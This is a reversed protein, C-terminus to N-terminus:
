QLTTWNDVTWATWLWFNFYFAAASYGLCGEFGRCEPHHKCMYTCESANDRESFKVEIEQLEQQCSIATDVFELMTVTSAKWPMKTGKEKTLLLAFSLASFWVDSEVLEMSISEKLIYMITQFVRSRNQSLSTGWIQSLPALRKQKTSQM